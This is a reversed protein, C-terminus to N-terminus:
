TALPAVNSPELEPEPEAVITSPDVQTAEQANEAGWYQDEGFSADVTNKCTRAIHRSGGCRKCIRKRPGLGGRGEASSRIRNKRLRGPARGQVPAHLVFGLNIIDWQQKGVMSHVNEAYIVIFKVVTYYEHVYQDIEAAVGHFSTIFFM